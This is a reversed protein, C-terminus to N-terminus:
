GSPSAPNASKVKKSKRLSQSIVQAGIGCSIVLISDTDQLNKTNKILEMKTKAEVCPSEIVVQGSIQKGNQSLFESMAKVEEEGGSKCTTACESCGVVFVKKDDALKELIVEKDKLKSIIM